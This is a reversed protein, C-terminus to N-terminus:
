DWDEPNHSFTQRRKSNNRVRGAKRRSNQKKNGEMKQSKRKMSEEQYKDTDSM